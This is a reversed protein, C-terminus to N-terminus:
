RLGGIFKMTSLLDRSVETKTSKGNGTNIVLILTRHKSHKLPIIKFDIGKHKYDFGKDRQKRTVRELPEM